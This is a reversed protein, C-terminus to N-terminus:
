AIAFLVLVGILMNLMCLFIAGFAALARKKKVCHGLYLASYIIAAAQIWVAAM